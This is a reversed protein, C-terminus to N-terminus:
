RVRKSLRAYAVVQHSCVGTGGLLRSPFGGCTCVVRGWRSDAAVAASGQRSSARACWSRTVLGATNADITPLHIRICREAHSSSARVQKVVRSRRELARQLVTHSNRLATNEAMLQDMTDRAAQGEAELKRMRQENGHVMTKMAQSADWTFCSIIPSTNRM